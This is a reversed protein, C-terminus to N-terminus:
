LLVGVLTNEEQSVHTIKFEKFRALKKTALKLYQQLLMKIAQAEGNIHCVFLQSSKRVNIHYTMMKKALSMRAVM